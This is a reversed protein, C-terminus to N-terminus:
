NDTKLILPNEPSWLHGIKNEQTDCHVIRKLKHEYWCERTVDRGCRQDSQQDRALLLRPNSWINKWMVATM